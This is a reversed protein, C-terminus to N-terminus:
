DEVSNEGENHECRGLVIIENVRRINLFRVPQQNGCSAALAIFSSAYGLFVGSVVSGRSDKVVIKYGPILILGPLHLPRAAIRDLLEEM